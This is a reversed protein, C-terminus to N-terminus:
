LQVAHRSTAAARTGCMRAVRLPTPTCVRPTCFIAPSARASADCRQGDDLRQENRAAVQHVGDAVQHRVGHHREHHHVKKRLQRTARANTEVGAQQLAAKM